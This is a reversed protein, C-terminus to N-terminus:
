KKARDDWFFHKSELEQPKPYPSYLMQQQDGLFFGNRVARYPFIRPNIRDITKTHKGQDDEFGVFCARLHDLRDYPLDTARGYKRDEALDALGLRFFM